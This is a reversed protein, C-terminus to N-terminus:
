AKYAGKLAYALKKDGHLGYVGHHGQSKIHVYFNADDWLFMTNLDYDDFWAKVNYIVSSFMVKWLFRKSVNENSNKKWILLFFDYYLKKVYIWKSM